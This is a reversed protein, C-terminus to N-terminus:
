TKYEEVRLSGDERHHVLLQLEPIEQFDPVVPWVPNSFVFVHKHHSIKDYSAALMTGPGLHDFLANLLERTFGCGEHRSMAVAKLRGKHKESDSRIDIEDAM